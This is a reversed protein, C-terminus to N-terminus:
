DNIGWERLSWSDEFQSHSSKPLPHLGQSTAAPQPGQARHLFVEVGATGSLGRLSELLRTPAPEREMDPDLVVALALPRDGKRALWQGLWLRVAPPLDGSGHASLVVVDAEAAESVARELLAPERLLDFRWLRLDLDAELDLRSAIGELLQRAQLGTTLDEYLLLVKLASALARDGCGPAEMLHHASM